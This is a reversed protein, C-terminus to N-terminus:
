PEPMADGGGQGAEGTGSHLALWMAKRHEPPGNFGLGRFVAYLFEGVTIAAQWTVRGGGREGTFSVDPNYRLPLHAVDPLTVFFLDYVRERGLQEPGVGAPPAARPMGLGRVKRRMHYPGSWSGHRVPATVQYIEIEGTVDDPGAIGVATGQFDVPVDPLVGEVLEGGDRVVTV